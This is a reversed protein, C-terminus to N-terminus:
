LSTLRLFLSIPIHKIGFFGVIVLLGLKVPIAHSQTDMSPMRTIGNGDVQTLDGGPVVPPTAANVSNSHSSQSGVARRQLGEVPQNQEELPIAQEAIREEAIQQPDSNRQRLKAKIKGIKQRGYLDWVATAFGGIVLLVPFYWLANYCLGAGGGFIVLM